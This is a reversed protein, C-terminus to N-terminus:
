KTTSVKYKKVPSKVVSGNDLKWVSQIKVTYRKNRKLKKITITNSSTKYTKGNVSFTTYSANEAKTFNITVSKPGKTYTLDMPLGVKLKVWKAFLKLDQVVDEKITDVRSDPSFGSSTYWGDFLYGARTADKLTTIIGVTWVFPNDKDNEAAETGLVYEIRRTIPEAKLSYKVTDKTKPASVMIYNVGQVQLKWVEKTEVKGPAVTFTAMETGKSDVFRVSISDDPKDSFNQLSVIIGTGPSVCKFCDVDPHGHIIKEYNSALDIAMATDMLDGVDDPLPAVSVHCLSGAEKTGVVAANKTYVTVCYKTQFSLRVVETYTKGAEVAKTTYSDDVRTGDMAYLAFNQTVPTNNTYTYKYLANTADTSFSVGAYLNGNYVPKEATGTNHAAFQVTGTSSLSISEVANTETPIKFANETEVADVKAAADGSIFILSAMLMVLGMVPIVLLRKAFRM